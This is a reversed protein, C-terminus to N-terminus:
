SKQLPVEFEIISEGNKGIREVSIRDIVCQLKEPLSHIDKAVEAALEANEKRGVTVHPIYPIDERLFQALPGKYLMDHLEEIQEKGGEVELFLYNGVSTIRNAFEIEIKGIGKALNLIHSKLEDNSINSKFPFVITIHPPILGFLPDHKQRIDEIKDISMNNLFVLITRM